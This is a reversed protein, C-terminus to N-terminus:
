GLRAAVRTATWATWEYCSTPEMDQRRLATEMAEVSPWVRYEMDYSLARVSTREPHAPVHECYAAFSLSYLNMM